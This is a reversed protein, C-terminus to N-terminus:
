PDPLPEFTYIAVSAYLSPKMITQRLLNQEMITTNLALSTHHSQSFTERSNSYPLRTLLACRRRTEELTSHRFIIPKQSPCIKLIKETYGM